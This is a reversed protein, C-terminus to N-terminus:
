HLIHARFAQAVAHVRNSADLKRIACTLYKEVTKESLGLICSIEWTTKGEASWRLCEVERSSLNLARVAARNGTDALMERLRGHAYIALLHLAGQFEPDRRFERGGFSVAAQFGSVSYIPVCFGEALGLERAENMM